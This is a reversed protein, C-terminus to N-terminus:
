KEFLERLRGIDSTEPIHAESDFTNEIGLLKYKTSGMPHYPIIDVKGCSQLSDRLKMINQIHEETLNVGKIIICRLVLNRCLLDTKRLNDMILTQSVGTNRRHREEESDKYDWLFTDTYEALEPIYSSDFYGCTEVATTLGALKANKLLDICAEPYFMPEGGSVTIGGKEGFFAKDKMVEDLIQETTMIKSDAELAGTPCIEACRGCHMCLERVFVHREDLLHAKAPCISCAGCELCKDPYFFIRTSKSQTEPNHCWICRLPCGKFFVTTRIGPGDHM